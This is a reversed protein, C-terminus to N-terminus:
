YSESNNMHIQSTYNLTYADHIINCNDINQPPIVPAFLGVALDSRIDTRVTCYYIHLM